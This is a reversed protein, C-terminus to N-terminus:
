GSALRRRVWRSLRLGWLMAGSAVTLAALVGMGVLLPHNFRERGRYDMIHLSWLFDYARWLDNRRATVEGTTADVWVATHLSDALQVRWAPLPRGRYELPPDREVRVASHVAPGGAQDRRATQEAEAREVPAPAGTHADLRLTTQGRVLYFLGAPTARLELTHVGPLRRLVEAPPVVKAEPPIRGQHAGPVGEGRVREIPVLAFFTGSATWIALQGLTLASLLRHLAYLRRSM